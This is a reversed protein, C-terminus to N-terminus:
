AGDRGDALAAAITGLLGPGESERGDKVAFKDM